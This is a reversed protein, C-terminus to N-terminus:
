EDYIIRSGRKELRFPLEVLDSLVKRVKNQNEPEVYFLLFGRGGAGCIKGGVAGAKRAKEYWYDIKPNSINDAMKKKYEWNEHLMEGFKLFNNNKIAEVTNYALDKMHHLNKIRQSINKKQQSLVNKADSSIGTNFLLMKSFFIQETIPNLNIPVVNVSGNKKFEILNLGGYAAIYQDQKGIPENLQNIEVECADRALKEPSAKKGIFSYMANLCGVAFSSSGGLGTGQPIDCMLAIELGNSIGTKKLTERLLGNKVENIDKVIENESYKLWIQSDIRKKLIVYTFKDISASVVAGGYEKWYEKLDTGGGCFSVRLPTKSIIM